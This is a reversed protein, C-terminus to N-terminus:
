DRQYGLLRCAAQNVNTIRGGLDAQLFADPALEVVERTRVMAAIIDENAQQLRQNADHASQREKKMLFALYVVVIGEIALLLVDVAPQFPPDGAGSAFTYAALPVSIVLAWIGPGIGAVLSIVLVAAFFLLLPADTGTFPVLWLRLAFTSAVTAIAFF